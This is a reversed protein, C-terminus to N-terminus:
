KDGNVKVVEVVVIVWGIKILCMDLILVNEGIWCLIVKDFFNLVESECM